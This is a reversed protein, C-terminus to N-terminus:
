EKIALTAFYTNMKEYLPHDKHDHKDEYFDILKFGTQLQGGVLDQLTHGFEFPYGKERYEKKQGDTLEKADSYPIQNVVKLDSDKSEYDDDFLYVIPNAMGAMLKGDKKLVRFCERWVPLVDSVFCNSVPHFIM